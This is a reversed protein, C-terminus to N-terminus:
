GLQELLFLGPLDFDDKATKGNHWPIGAALDASPSVADLRSGGSATHNGPKEKVRSITRAFGAV